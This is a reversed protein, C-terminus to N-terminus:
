TMRDGTGDGQRVQVDDLFLAKDNAGILEALTQSSPEASVDTAVGM